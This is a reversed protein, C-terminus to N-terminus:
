VSLIQYGWLLFSGWWLCKPKRGLCGTFKMLWTVPLLPVSSMWSIVFLHSQSTSATQLVITPSKPLFLGCVLLCQMGCQGDRKGLPLGNVLHWCGYWSRCVCFSCSQKVFCLHSLCFIPGAHVLLVETQSPTLQFHSKFDNMTLSKLM